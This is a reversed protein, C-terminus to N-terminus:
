EKSQKKTHKNTQKANQPSKDLECETTESLQAHKIFESFPLPHPNRCPNSSSRGTLNAKFVYSAQVQHSFLCVFLFLLGRPSTVSVRAAAGGRLIFHFTVFQILTPRSEVAFIDETCNSKRRTTVREPCVAEQIWYKSWHQGRTSMLRRVSLQVFELILM